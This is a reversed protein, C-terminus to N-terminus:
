EIDIKGISKMYDNLVSNVGKTVDNTFTKVVSSYAFSNYLANLMNVRLIKKAALNKSIEGLLQSAESSGLSDESALPLMEEYSKELSEIDLNYDGFRDMILKITAIEEYLHEINNIFGQWEKMLDRQAFEVLNASYSQILSEM